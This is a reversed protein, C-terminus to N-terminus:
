RTKEQGNGVILVDVFRTREMIRNALSGRLIEQWRSMGTQGLVVQTIANEKIFEVIVDIVPRGGAARIFFKGGLIKALAEIERLKKREAESLRDAPKTPVHLIFLEAKMRQAIRWGRRILREANGGDSVLVLIKPSAGAVEEAGDDERYEELREDVDDALERLALERLAILNTPRFFHELAQPIKEPRYIKGAKLRELLKEPPLDVLQVENAVDLIWDPVRERVKVGTLDEVIDHLSELHQINMTSLVSIGADLIELVDEYRKKNKSGPVNTHALEDVIVFQPRRKIVGEVDLEYFTRGKYEIPKLPLVPLAGIQEATAKRGHTEVVGVVIDVGEALMDNAERLMTYTKGVGPAAGIYLKFYGRKSREIEKLIQEPSKRRREAAEAVAAGGERTRGESTKPERMITGFAACPPLPRGSSGRRPRGDRRGAVPVATGAVREM